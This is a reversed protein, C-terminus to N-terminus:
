KPMIESYMILSKNRKFIVNGKEKQSILTCSIKKWKKNEILTGNV